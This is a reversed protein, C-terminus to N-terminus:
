EEKVEIQVETKRGLRLSVNKFLVWKCARTQFEFHDVDQPLIGVFTCEGSVCNKASVPAHLDGIHIAGAKDTAAIRVEPAYDAGSHAVILVTNGRREFPPHFVVGWNRFGRAKWGRGNYWEVTKWLDVPLGFRVEVEYPPTPIVASVARLDDIATGQDNLATGRVAPYLAAPIELRDELPDGGTVRVAFEYTKHRSDVTAVGSLTTYPPNELATGDPQWWRNDRYERVGVLQVALKGYLPAGWRTVHDREQHGRGHAMFACSTCTVLCLMLQISGRLARFDNSM